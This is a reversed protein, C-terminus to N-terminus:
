ELEAKWSGLSCLEGALDAFKVWRKEAASTGAAIAGGRADAQSASLPPKHQEIWSELMARSRPFPHPAEASERAFRRLRVALRQSWELHAPKCVVVDCNPVKSQM